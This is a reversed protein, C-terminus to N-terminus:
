FLTEEKWLRTEKVLKKEPVQVSIGILRIKRGKKREWVEDLLQLFYQSSLKNTSRELTTQTFDSFKLKIRLKKFEELSEDSFNSKVRFILKKFLEAVIEQADLIDDIDKLFTNEVGVSKRVRNAQIKRKDIGNSYDILQQGFKGFNKLIIQKNAKKIDGCTKFGLNLLKKHTVKGVGPIKKLDLNEIFTEVDEPPIVYQGNPKNLDSAIKALFKLPAVGASASLHLEEYIDKRIAQAIWTASNFYQECSSVDLYAEDLSIPEIINTYRKFIERIQASVSKYLNMNVPRLILNPCKKLAQQSPMASHLGFKRAEYNCTTLVGRNEPKGGVAVAKGILSPNERIEVSAYFCDMDIHIIKQLSSKQKKM